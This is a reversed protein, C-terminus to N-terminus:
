TIEIVQSACKGGFGFSNNLAKKGTTTRNKDTIMGDTDFSCKTINHNDPIQGSQLSKITYIAEIIGCAGFTHGIKSKNSVIPVNGLVEKIANYEIEDGMPTSTGHANVFSVDNGKLANIM